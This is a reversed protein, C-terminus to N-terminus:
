FPIHSFFRLELHLKPQLRSGLSKNQGGLKNRSGNKHLKTCYGDKQFLCFNIMDVTCQVIPIPMLQLNFNFILVQCHNSIRAIKIILQYGNQFQFSM